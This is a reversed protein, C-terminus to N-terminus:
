NLGVCKVVFFDGSYCLDLRVEFHHCAHGLGFFDVVFSSRKESSTFVQRVCSGDVVKVGLIEFIPWGDSSCFIDSRDAAIGLFDDGRSCLARYLVRNLIARNAM